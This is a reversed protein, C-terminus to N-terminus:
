QAFDDPSVDQVWAEFEKLEEEDSLGEKFIFPYSAREFVSDAMYIPASSRLALVVADSPRADLVITDGQHKMIVKAYFTVDKVDVIQVQDITADLAALAGLMLTHTMPRKFSMNQIAASIQSAEHAGVWIPVIRRTRSLKAEQAPCLVLVSPHPPTTAVLTQIAVPILM